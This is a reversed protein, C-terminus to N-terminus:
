LATMAARALGQRRFAAETAVWQIYGVRGTPNGPGPLRTAITGAVSAVLQNPRDPHDAVFIALDQGLRAQARAAGEARWQEGSSDLGISEFMLAALRIVEPIDEIVAARVGTM